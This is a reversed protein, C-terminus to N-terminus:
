HAHQLVWMLIAIALIGLPTGVWLALAERREENRQITRSVAMGYDHDADATAIQRQQEEVPLEHFGAPVSYRNGGIFEDRNTAETM